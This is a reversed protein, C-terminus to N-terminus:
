PTSGVQSLKPSCAWELTGTTRNPLFTCVKRNYRSLKKLFSSFVEQYARRVLSLESWNNKNRKTELVFRIKYEFLYKENFFNKRAIKRKQRCLTTRSISFKIQKKMKDRYIKEFVSFFGTKKQTAHKYIGQDIDSLKCIRIKFVIM